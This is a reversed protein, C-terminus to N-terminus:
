SGHAFSKCRKLGSAQSSSKSTSSAADSADDQFLKQRLAHSLAQSSKSALKAEPAEELSKFKKKAPTAVRKEGFLAGQWELVDVPLGEVGANLFETWVSDVNVEMGNITLVVMTSVDLPNEISVASAYSFDLKKANDWYCSLKNDESLQYYGKVLIDFDKNYAPHPAAAEYHQSLAAITAGLEHPVQHSVSPLVTNKTIKLLRCLVFSLTEDDSEQAKEWLSPELSKIIEAVM